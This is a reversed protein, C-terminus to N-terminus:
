RGGSDSQTGTAEWGQQGIALADSRRRLVRYCECAQAELGARDLIEITGRRQRILGASHLIGSTLTVTTRRVGLMQSLFDQTLPLEASEARDQAQLLWRALRAELSHLANCAATQQVQALQSEKYRLVLDRLPESRSVAGFFRAASVIAGTGPLQVVARTFAHWPGLGAFAGLAGERGVTATEVMGGNEMVAVLSIMGSLPFIVHEVKTDIEQVIAGQQLPIESLHPLLLALDAPALSGLLLNRIHHPAGM